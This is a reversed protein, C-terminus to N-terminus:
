ELYGPEGRKKDAGPKARSRIQHSIIALGVSALLLVVGIGIKISAPRDATATRDSALQWAGILLMGFGLCMLPTGSPALRGLFRMAPGNWIDEPPVPEVGSRSRVTALVARYGPTNGHIAISQGKGRIKAVETPPSEKSTWLTVSEVVDFPIRRNVFLSRLAIDSDSVTLVRSCMELGLVALAPAAAAFLLGLVMAGMRPGEFHDSRGQEFGALGGILCMPAVFLVILLGATRDQHCVQGGRALRPSVRARLPALHEDLGSKGQYRESM